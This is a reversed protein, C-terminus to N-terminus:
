KAPCDGSAAKITTGQLSPHDASVAAAMDSLSGEIQVRKGVFSKLKDDALGKIDYTAGSAAGSTGTPEASKPAGTPESPRATAQSGSGKVIKANTLTFAEMGGAKESPAQALCGELTVSAAQSKMSPAKTQPTASQPASPTSTPPNQAAVAAAFTCVTAISCAFIYRRM